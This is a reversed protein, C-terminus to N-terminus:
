TARGEARQKLARNMGEFGQKTKGLLKNALPVLAGGFIEQQVFRVSGTAAPQILFQHEGDFIRPIGLVHGLWKLEAGPTASLVKPHLTIGRGEPPQLTVDLRTGAVPEGTISKIFPNWLPYSPFDTLIEWVREKSAVIEVETAIMKTM